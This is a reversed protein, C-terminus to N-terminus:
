GRALYTQEGRRYECTASRAPVSARPLLAPRCERWHMEDSLQARANARAGAPSASPRTAHRCARAFASPASDARPLVACPRTPASAGATGSGGRAAACRRAGRRASNRATSPHVALFPCSSPARLDISRQALFSPQRETNPSMPSPQPASSRLVRLRPSLQPVSPSPTYPTKAGSFTRGRDYISALFAGQSIKEYAHVGSPLRM